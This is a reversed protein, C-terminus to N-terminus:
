SFLYGTMSVCSFEIAKNFVTITDEANSAGLISLLPYFHEPTPVSERAADGFGLYHICKDFDRNVVAEEIYNDFSEAWPSKTNGQSMMRLNHVVNGSGIIMYGQDRLGAISQGINFHDQPSITRDVSLQVVPINAEPYMHVLVSWTGHDIGWSNDIVVSKGLVNKIEQTLTKDGQVPYTMTYLEQPFGYMDNIKNPSIDDQTKTGETFWHASIVLIAKPKFQEGLKKWENTFANNEIASMPSGHGIFIGPMRM